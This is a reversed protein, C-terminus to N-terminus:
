PCQVAIRWSSKSPAFGYTPIMIRFTHRLEAIIKIPYLRLHLDHHLIHLSLFRTPSQQRGHYIYFKSAGAMMGYDMVLNKAAILELRKIPAILEQLESLSHLALVRALKTM